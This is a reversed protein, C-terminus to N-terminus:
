MRLLLDMMEQLATMVRANAGYATQLELLDAMERDINVSAREEFRQRLTNVVVEQGESLRGAAEAADGQQSVMQRLYSTLSGAFPAATTGIGARPSYLFTSQALREYLFSPRTSDGADTLPSTSFVILRSPDAILGPNVTIRGAFGVSQLGSAAVAGTYPANGDLFFPLEAVGGTLTSMTQTASFADVSVNGGGDDLVRLVSGSPNSFQLGAAGLAANLQAVVSAMGGSFDIGIVEDDPDATHTSALPLVSSDDVRVLTVKHRINGSVTYTLSITNGTLLGGIDLDFGAQTGSTVASGAITRDSLARALAAALEDLQAQAEVLVNDRMEVYAAIEGSRIARSALLDIRNGSPTLLTVTGVGRQAPDANWQAAATLMGRADFSLQAAQIGALQFGNSTFITVQDGEGAVVRIDMLAALREIQMDRQDLLAARAANDQTSRSLEGNIRAIERLADNAQSVASALGLEADIRLGQIDEAMRNLQQALEQAASLVESRVSPSEPSASLAQLASTLRNFATELTTEGGPKGHISQLMAHFRALLDAYAAGSTEIRLQRQIYQDLERAVGVVQVGLGFDGGATTIQVGTKRIYGPTGANAVNAAVLSLQTQAARLGAMATNLAQNLSM